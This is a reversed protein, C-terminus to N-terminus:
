HHVDKFLVQGLKLFKVFSTQTKATQLVYHDLRLTNVAQPLLCM